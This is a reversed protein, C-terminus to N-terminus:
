SAVFKEKKRQNREGQKKKVQEIRHRGCREPRPGPVGQKLFFMGCEDADKLNHSCRCVWLGWELTPNAVLTSAYHVFGELTPTFFPEEDVIGWSRGDFGVRAFVDSGLRSVDILRPRDAGIQNLASQPTIPVRAAVAEVHKDLFNIWWRHLRQAYTIGRASPTVNEAARWRAGFRVLGRKTFPPFVALRECVALVDLRQQNALWIADVLVQRQAIRRRIIVDDLETLVKKKL